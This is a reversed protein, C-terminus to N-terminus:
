ENGLRQRYRIRDYESKDRKCDDCICHGSSVINNTCKRYLMNYGAARKQVLGKKIAHTSNQKYTCAELNEISNDSKNGSLHNVIPLDPTLAVDGYILFVLRHVLIDRTRNQFRVSIIRYGDPRTRGMPKKLRGHTVMGDPSVLIFGEAVLKKFLADNDFNPRPM